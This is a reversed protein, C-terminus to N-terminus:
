FARHSCHRRQLRHLSLRRIAEQRNNNRHRTRGTLPSRDEEPEFVSDDVGGVGPKKEVALDVGNTRGNTTM